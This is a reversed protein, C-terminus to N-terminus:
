CRNQITNRVPRDRSMLRGTLKKSINYLTKLDRQRAATEAEAALNNAHERKDRRCLRKVESLWCKGRDRKAKGLVEEGTAQYANKIVTWQEEVKEKGTQESFEAEEQSGDEIFLSQFGNTLKLQFSDRVDREKFQNINFRVKGSKVKVVKAM